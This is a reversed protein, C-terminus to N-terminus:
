KVMNVLEQLTTKGYILGKDTIFEGRFEIGHVVRDNYDTYVMVSWCRMVSITVGNSLHYVTYGRDINTHKM